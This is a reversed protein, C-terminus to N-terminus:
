TGVYILTELNFAYKIKLLKNYLHCYFCLIDVTTSMLPRLTLSWLYYLRVIDYMVVMGDAQVSDDSYPRSSLKLLWLMVTHEFMFIAFTQAWISCIHTIKMCKFIPRMCWQLWKASTVQHVVIAMKTGGPVRKCGLSTFCTRSFLSAWLLLTSVVITRRKSPIFM